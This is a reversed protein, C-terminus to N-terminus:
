AEAVIALRESPVDLDLPLTGARPPSFPQHVIVKGSTNGEFAKISARNSKEGMNVVVCARKGTRSNQFMSYRMEEAGAFQVGLTDLFEGFCITDKVPEQIRLVELVYNSLQRM